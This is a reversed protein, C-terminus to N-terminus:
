GAPIVSTVRRLGGGDVGAMWLTEGNEHGRTFVLARGDPSWLPHRPQGNRRTGWGDFYGSTDDNVFVIREGGGPIRRVLLTDPGGRERAVRVYALWAGDPSIAPHVADEVAHREGTRADVAVIRSRGTADPQTAVIWRGDASWAGRALLAAGGRGIGHM